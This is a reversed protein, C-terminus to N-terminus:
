NVSLKLFVEDVIMIECTVNAPHVELVHGGMSADDAVFHLHYGPPNIGAAFQPTRFGVITGKVKTKEFIPQTKVIESLSPYPKKQAPVSRTKIYEFTGTIKIAVFVDPNDALKDTIKYLSSDGLINVQKQPKFFCVSAFPTKDSLDPNSIVKGSALIQFMKGDILIMEGNLANFGGLGTDGHKILEQMSIIGDLKGNYLAQYCSAQFLTQTFSTAYVFIFFLFLITRKIKM